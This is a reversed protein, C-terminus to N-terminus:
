RRPRPPPPPPSSPSSPTRRRAARVLWAAVGLLIVVGAVRGLKYAVTEAEGEARRADPSSSAVMRSPPTLAAQDRVMQRLVAVNDDPDRVVLIVGMSGSALVTEVARRSGGPEALEYAVAEGLPPQESPFLPMARAEAALGHHVGAVFDTAGGTGVDFGMAIAMGDGAPTRFVRVYAAASGVAPDPLGAGLIGFLEGVTTPGSSIGGSNAGKPLAVYGAVSQVLRDGIDEPSAVQAGVPSAGVVATLTLTAALVGATCVAVRRHLRAVVTIWM